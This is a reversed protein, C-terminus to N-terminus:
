LSGFFCGELRRRCYRSYKGRSKGSLSGDVGLAGQNKNWVRMSMNLIYFLLFHLLQSANCGSVVTVVRRPALQAASIVLGIYHVM